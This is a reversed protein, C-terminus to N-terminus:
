VMGLVVLCINVGEISSFLGVCLCCSSLFANGKLTGEFEVTTSVDIMRQEPLVKSRGRLLAATSALEILTSCKGLSDLCIKTGKLVKDLLEVSSCESDLAGTPAPKYTIAKVYTIYLKQGLYVRM